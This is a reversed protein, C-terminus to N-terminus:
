TRKGNTAGLNLVCDKYLGTSANHILFKIKKPHQLGVAVGALFNAMVNGSPSIIDRSTDLHTMSKQLSVLLEDLAFPNINGRLAIVIEGPKKELEGLDQSRHHVVFIKRTTVGTEKRLIGSIQSHDPIETTFFGSAGARNGAEPQSLPNLFSSHRPPITYTAMRM